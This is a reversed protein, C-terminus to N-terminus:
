LSVPAAQFDAPADIAVARAFEFREHGGLALAAGKDCPRHSPVVGVRDKLDRSGRASRLVQLGDRLEECRVSVAVNLLQGMQALAM